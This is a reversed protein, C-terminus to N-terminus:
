PGALFSKYLYARYKAIDAVTNRGRTDNTDMNTDHLKRVLHRLLTRWKLLHLYMYM